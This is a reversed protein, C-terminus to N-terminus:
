YAPDKSMGLIVEHMHRATEERVASVPDNALKLTIPLIYRFLTEADYNRAITSLQQAVEMRIRWKKPNKQLVMFVDILSERMAANFISVFHSFHEM